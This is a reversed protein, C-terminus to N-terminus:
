ASTPHLRRALVPIVIAAAVVHTTVLAVKSPADFVMTLDPVVSLATLAVTTRVFSRQPDAARRRLAAALVIGVVSFVVTLQAFGLVPIADGPATEFATADVATVVAAIASTAVAATAAAALGPKWLATAPSGTASTDTADTTSPVTTPATIATM